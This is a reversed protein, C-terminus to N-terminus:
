SFLRGLWTKKKMKGRKGKSEQVVNGVIKGTLTNIAVTEDGYQIVKIM